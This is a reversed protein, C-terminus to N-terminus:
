VTPRPAASALTSTSSTTPPAGAAASASAATAAPSDFSATCYKAVLASAASPATAVVFAPSRTSTFPERPTRVSRPTPRNFASRPQHEEVQEIRKVSRDVHQ